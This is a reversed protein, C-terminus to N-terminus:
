ANAFYYDKVIESDGWLEMMFKEDTISGNEFDVTAVKFETIQGFNGDASSVENEFNLRSKADEINLFFGEFNGTNSNYNDARFITTTSM